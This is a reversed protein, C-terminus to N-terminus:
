ESAPHHELWDALFEPDIFEDARADEARIVPAYGNQLAAQALVDVDRVDAKRVAELDCEVAEHGAARIAEKAHECRECGPLSWVQIKMPYGETIPSRIVIM